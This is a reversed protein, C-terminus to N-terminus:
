KLPLEVLAYGAPLKLTSLTPGDKAASFPIEMVVDSDLALEVSFDKDTENEIEEDLVRHGDQMLDLTPTSPKDEANPGTLVYQHLVKHEDGFYLIGLFTKSDTGKPPTDFVRRFTIFRSKTSSIVSVIGCNGVYIKTGDALNFDTFVPLDDSELDSSTEYFFDGLTGTNAPSTSAEWIKKKPFSEGEGLYATATLSTDDNTDTHLHVTTKVTQVVVISLPKEHAPDFFLGDRALVTVGTSEVLKNGDKTVFHVQATPIPLDSAAQAFVVAPAFLLAPLLAFLRRLSM